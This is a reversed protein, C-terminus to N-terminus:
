SLAEDDIWASSRGGQDAAVRDQQRERPQRAREDELAPNPTRPTPTATTTRATITETRRM